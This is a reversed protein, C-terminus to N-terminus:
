WYSFTNSMRMYDKVISAIVHVKLSLTSVPFPKAAKSHSRNRFPQWFPDSSGNEKGRTLQEKNTEFLRNMLFLVICHMTSFLSLRRISSLGSVGSANLCPVKGKLAIWSNDGGRTM